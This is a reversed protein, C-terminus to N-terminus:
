TRKRTLALLYVAAAERERLLVNAVAGATSGYEFLDDILLVRKARVESPEGRFAGELMRARDDPFEINKMPPTIKVKVV